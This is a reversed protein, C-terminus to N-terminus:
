AVILRDIPTVNAYGINQGVFCYFPEANRYENVRDGDVSAIVGANIIASM